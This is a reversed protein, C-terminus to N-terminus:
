SYTIYVTKKGTPSRVKRVIVRRDGKISGDIDSVIDVEDYSLVLSSKFDDTIDHGFSPNLKEMFEGTELLKDIRNPNTLSETMFIHAYENYGVESGMQSAGSIIGADSSSVGIGADYGELDGFVLKRSTSVSGARSDHYLVDFKINDVVINETSSQAGYAKVYISSTGNAQPRLSIRYTGGIVQSSVFDSKKGAIFVSLDDKRLGGLGNGSGDSVNVYFSLLGDKFGTIDPPIALSSVETAPVIELPSVVSRTNGAADSCEITVSHVGEELEVKSEHYTTNTYLFQEAEAAGDRFTCVAVEDTTAFLIPEEGVIKGTSYTLIEPPEIDLSTDDQNSWRWLGVGNEAGVIAIYEDSSAAMFEGETETPAYDISQVPEGTDKTINLKYRRIGSIDDSETWYYKVRKTSPNFVSDVIVPRTPPTNDIRVRWSTYGGWNGAGDRAQVRFHQEASRVSTFTKTTESAFSGVKGEPVNDPVANDSLVYSFAGIGSLGDTATWSFRVQDAYVWTSEDLLAQWLGTTKNLFAKQSISPNGPPLLDITVNDSLSSNILGASNIVTINISIKDGHALNFGSEVLATDPDTKMGSELYARNRFLTYNYILPIQLVESERDAARTWTARITRNDNTYGSYSIRVSSPRTVDLGAGTYNLIISDNSPISLGIGTYNVQFYVYKPGNGDILQWLKVNACPEFASWDPDSDLPRSDGTEHNIFRCKSASPLYDLDLVVAKVPTFEPNTEDFGTEGINDISISSYSTDPLGNACACDVAFPSTLSSAVSSDCRDHSDDCGSVFLNGDSEDIRVPTGVAACGTSTMMGDAV